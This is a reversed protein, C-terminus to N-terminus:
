KSHLKQVVRRLSMWNTESTTSKRILSHQSQFGVCHEMSMRTSGNRMSISGDRYFKATLTSPRHEQIFM